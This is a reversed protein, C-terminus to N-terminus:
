LLRLRQVVDEFFINELFFFYFDRSGKTGSCLGWSCDRSGKTGSCLGWIFDRSGKTGSCLGWIFDRSGKTGLCLGRKITSFRGYQYPLTKIM